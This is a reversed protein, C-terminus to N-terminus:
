LKNWAIMELEENTGEWKLYDYEQEYPMKNNIYINKNINKNINKKKTQGFPSYPISRKTVTKNVTEDIASEGNPRNVTEDIGKGWLNYNKIFRIFSDKRELMNLKELKQIARLVSRPSSNVAKALFKLSLESEKRNYGYTYRIVTLLIRLEMGSIKTFKSLNEIIENAIATYGNEKQPNGM